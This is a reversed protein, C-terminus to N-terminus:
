LNEYDAGEDSESAQAGGPVNIYELSPARSDGDGEPVNEYPEEGEGEGEGAGIVDGPADTVDNTVDDTVDSPPTPDPLVTVYGSPENSYDADEPPDPEPEASVRRSPPAQPPGLSRPEWPTAWPPQLPQPPPACRPTVVMFRAPPPASLPPTCDYNDMPPRQPPRARRCRAACACLSALLPPLPLLLLAWLPAEM